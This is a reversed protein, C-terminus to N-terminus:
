LRDCVFRTHMVLVVISAEKALQSIIDYRGSNRLKKVVICIQYITSIDILATTHDNAPEIAMMVSEAKQSLGNGM